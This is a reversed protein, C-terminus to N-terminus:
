KGGKRRSPLAIVFAFLLNVFISLIILAPILSFALKAGPIFTIALPYLVVISVVSMTMFQLLNIKLNDMKSYGIYSLVMQDYDKRYYFKNLIAKIVLMVLLASAIIGLLGWLLSIKVFMNLDALNMLKNESTVWPQYYIAQYSSSKAKSLANRAQGVDKFRYSTEIKSDILASVIISQDVYYENDYVGKDPVADFYYIDGFLTLPLEVGLFSAKIKGKLSNPLCLKSAFSRYTDGVVDSSYNLSEGGDTTFKVSLYNGDEGIQSFSSSASFVYAMTEQKLSYSLVTKVTSRLSDLFPIPAIFAIGSSNFSEDKTLYIGRLYCKPMQKLLEIDTNLPPNGYNSFSSSVTISNGIYTKLITFAYSYNLNGNDYLLAWVEPLSADSSQGKDLYTNTSVPCYATFQGNIMNDLYSVTGNIFDEMQSTLSLIFSNSELLAGDDKYFDGDPQFDTQDYSTKKVIIKNGFMTRLTSPTKATTSTGTISISNDSLAAQLIATYGIASACISFTSILLVLLTCFFRGLRSFCFLKTAYLYNLFSFKGTRPKVEVAGADSSPNKIIEDKSIKGDALTIHRTVYDKVQAYEHTVYVVLRNKKLKEILDIIEKSTAQDLNGTPEDFIIVQTNLALSRAIAVRQREGGSLKSARMKAQKELGVQKLSDLAVKEAESPNYGQKILALSINQVATVSEVLNYDQFVFSINEAYLKQRQNDSLGSLPKGDFYIEGEDFDEIGTLIRILTSKGAGSEGTIVVFSGDTNLTLNVGEIGKTSKGEDYYYKTVDVLKIEM